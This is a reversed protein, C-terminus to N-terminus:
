VRFLATERRYREYDQLSIGVGKGEKLLQQAVKMDDVVYCTNKGVGADIDRYFPSRAPKKKFTKKPTKSQSEVNTGQKDSPLKITM